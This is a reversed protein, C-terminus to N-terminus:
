AQNVIRYVKVGEVTEKLKVPAESLILRMLAAPGYSTGPQVIVVFDPIGVAKDGPKPVGLVAVAASDMRGAEGIVEPAILMGLTKVTSTKWIPTNPYKADLDALSDPVEYLVSGKFLDRVEKALQGLQHVEAYALTNAPLLEAPSKGKQAHAPATWVLSLGVMLTLMSTRMQPGGM